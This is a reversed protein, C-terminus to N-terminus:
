QAYRGDEVLVIKCKPCLIALMEVTTPSDDYFKTVGISNIMQAKWNIVKFESRDPSGPYFYTTIGPGVKKERFKSYEQWSTGTILGKVKGWIEPHSSFTGYFDAFIIEDHM